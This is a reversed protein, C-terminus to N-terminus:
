EDAPQSVAQGAGQRALAEPFIAKVAVERKAFPDFGLYVIVDRGRGAQSDSKTSASASRRKWRDSGTGPGPSRPACRPLRPAAAHNRAALSGAVTLVSFVDDAILPSFARL